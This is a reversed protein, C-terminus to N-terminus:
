NIGQENFETEGINVFKKKLNNKAKALNSKSTGVSIGLEEAVEKHSYGEIVYLNFVARYAPSLTQVAKLIDETRLHSLVDYTPEENEINKFEEIDKVYINKNKRFYDITTNIMIRRVWGEFSGSFNFKGINEFVKLFGDHLLDKAEERNNSYRLCVGMMKGYLLEYIKQQCERDGKACGVILKDMATSGIM